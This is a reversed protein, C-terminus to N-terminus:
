FKLLQFCLVEGTLVGGTCDFLGQHNGVLDIQCASDRPAMWKTMAGNAATSTAVIGGMKLIEFTVLM